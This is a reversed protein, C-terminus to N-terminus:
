WRHTFGGIVMCLCGILEIMVLFGVINATMTNIDSSYIMNFIDNM